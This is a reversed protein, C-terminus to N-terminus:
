PSITVPGASAFSGGGKQTTSATVGSVFTYSNDNVKTITYGSASNITAAPLNVVNTADRFRVTQGSSRGHDPENVTVTTSANTITFPNVPLLKPVAPETRDPRVHRLSIADGNM